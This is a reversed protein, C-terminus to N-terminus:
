NRDFYYRPSFDKNNSIYTYLTFFRLFLFIWIMKMLFKNRKWERYLYINAKKRNRREEWWLIRYRGVKEQISVFENEFLKWKRVNCKQNIPITMFKINTEQYSSIFFLFSLPKKEIYVLVFFLSLCRIYFAVRRIESVWNKHDKDVVRKFRKTSKRKM